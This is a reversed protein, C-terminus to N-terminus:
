SRVAVKDREGAEAASAPAAPTRGAGRAGGRRGGLDKLRMAPKEVCHWSLMALLVTVALSLALYPLLGWRAFGLIVLVQEVVFGYIYIGYSYDNRAGIRRFPAPLRIALWVLFYAFAPLGVVFLFGYHASLVLVLLSALGLVDSVPVRERYLEIVTGLAFAFGLYIVLVPNTFGLVPLDVPHFYTADFSGAWFRDGVAQRIVLWGLLGTILLVARRARALVGTLALLAVGGYCLVEYYLSWLAGDISRDHAVGKAMADSMVNSVDNQNLQIAGNSRLYEVPGWGHGWFGDLTGHLKWYLVPAAAFATLFLCVWLGPLLRLARHWLFRGLGLRVGSRTVLIGSLIFFGYVSWKGLDVQGQTFSHGFETKGFGLVRAHSVVVATALVLRIFGLSNNRGTLLEAVTGHSWRGSRRSTRNDM